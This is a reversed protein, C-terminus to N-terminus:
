GEWVMYLAKGDPTTIADQAVFGAKEYARIARRNEPDPDIILRTVNPRDMLAKAMRAVFASGLGQGLMEPEGIFCDLGHTGEPEAEWWGDGVAFANYVQLMAIDQGQYAVIYVELAPDAMKDTYKKEVDLPEDDWWEAVHPEGHWRALTPFDEPAIPRFTFTM